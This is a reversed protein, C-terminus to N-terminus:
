RTNVAGSPAEVPPGSPLHRPVWVILRTGRDPQSTGSGSGIRLRGGVLEVRERVGQLGYRDPRGPPLSELIAPDFGPGDDTLILEAGQQELRVHIAVQRAEAAHRYVNTLGEQAARYLTVMSPQAFGAEDGDVRLDITVRDDGAGKVLADLASRLSFPESAGRLSAVSHRVDTLAAVASQRADHVARDAEDPSRERFSLAKQLQISIATLHHGLSDHIDRALRNREEAAALEAIRETSARLSAHTAELDDLLQEARARSREQDQLARAMVVIFAVGVAFILLVSVYRDELYWRPDQASFRAILIGLYLIGLVYGARKGLSFYAQFPILLYLFKSFGACDLTAVVEYLAVRAALLAIPLWRSSSPLRPRAAYPEAALLLALLGVLAGTRAPSVEDGCLGLGWYYLHALMVACYLFSAVWPFRPPLASVM